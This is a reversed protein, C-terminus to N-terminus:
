YVMCCNDCQYGNKENENEDIRDIPYHHLNYDNEVLIVEAIKKRSINDIFTVKHNKSGRIIENGFADFRESQNNNLRENNSFNLSNFNSKKSNIIKTKDLSLSTSRSNINKDPDLLILKQTKSNNYKEFKPNNNNRLSISNM